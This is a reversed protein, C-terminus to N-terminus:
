AAERMAWAPLSVMEIAESYGPWNGTDICNKYIEIAKRYKARGTEISQIDLEYLAVAHPASKEVVIFIFTHANFDAAECCDLYWAAQIDYGYNAVSRAFGSPSADETTKLDIIVGPIYYDMRCKTEIGELESFLTLEPHGNRILKQATPHDLVSRATNTVTEHDTATLITKGSSELDAWVAKGEKTRRDVGEPAGIYRNKFDASEFVACHIASGLILAKTDEEKEILSTRFHLPSKLLKKIGSNNLRNAAFYDKAPLGFLLDKTM